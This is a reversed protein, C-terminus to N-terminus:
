FNPILLFNHVNGNPLVGEGIIEGRDNISLADILDLTTPAILTNLDHPIGHQWIMAALGGGHCDGDRGVVMDQANIANGNSCRSGALPPLDHMTGNRWLFAHHTGDALQAIGVVVGNQNVGTAFGNHGGLTGLDIMQKGNWLFPHAGPASALFSMGVIEGRDNLGRIGDFTPVGGGLSGLDRMSGNEWLFVDTPPQGTLPNPIASTYSVGAIQGGANINWAFSDPGGLTGLDRMSGDKWLFARSQTGWGLMSLPDPIANAAVGVVQDRNNLAFAQSENGGLTGLNVIQGRKWLVANTEEGGVLPDITGNDSIGAADGEANIGNPYSSNNAPVPGLAGLDTLVGGRWLFTHQVYPDGNFAGNENIGYPDIMATDVTGVVVGPGSLSPANGQGAQPGGLTGLDVLTYPYLSAARVAHVSNAAGFVLPTAIIAAMLVLAVPMPLKTRSPM